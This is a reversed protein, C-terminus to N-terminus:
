IFLDGFAQINISFTTEGAPITVPYDDSTATGNNTLTFTVTIDYPYSNGLTGNVVATGGETVTVPEITIAPFETVVADGDVGQIGGGKTSTSTARVGLTDIDNWSVAVNEITYSEGVQLYTPKAVGLPGIGASSLKVGGDWAERSGNM